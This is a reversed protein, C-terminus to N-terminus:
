RFKIQVCLPLSQVHRAVKDSFKSFQKVMIEKLVVPDATFIISSAGAYIRYFLYFDPDQVVENGDRVWRKAISSYFLPWTYMYMYNQSIHNFYRM